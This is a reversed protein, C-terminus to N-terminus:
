EIVARRGNIFVVTGRPLNAAEAEAVSNFMYSQGADESGTAMKEQWFAVSERAAAVSAEYKAKDPSNAPLANVYGEVERLKATAADLKARTAAEREAQTRANQMQYQWERTLQAAEARVSEVRMREAIAAQQENAKVTAGAEGMVPLVTSVAGAGAKRLIASVFPRMADLAEPTSAVDLANILSQAYAAEEASKAEIKAKELAMRQEAKQAELEKRQESKAKDRELQSQTQINDLMEAKKRDEKLQASPNAQSVGRAAPNYDSPKLMKGLVENMYGESLPMGNANAIKNARSLDAQLAEQRAQEYAKMYAAKNDAGPIAYPSVASGGGPTSFGGGFMNGAGQTGTTYLVQKNRPGYAPDNGLGYKRFYELYKRYAEEDFEGKYTLGSSPTGAYGTNMYPQSPGMLAM